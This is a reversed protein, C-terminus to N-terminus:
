RADVPAQAGDCREPIRRYGDLVVLRVTGVIGALALLALFALSATM